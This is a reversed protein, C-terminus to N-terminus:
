ERRHRAVSRTLLAALAVPLLWWAVVGASELAATAGGAVVVGAATVWDDGVIFDWVAVLARRV